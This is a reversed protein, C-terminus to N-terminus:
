NAVKVAAHRLIKDGVRYGKRLVEVVTNEGAKEDEVHAVAEHLMPDFPLGMAEIEELGLINLTETFQNIIMEVGKKYDDLSTNEVGKVRELNDLVPLLAALSVARADDFLCEKEKATRKRFNDFDAALRLFQEYLKDKEQKISELERTVKELEAKVSELEASPAPASEFASQTGTEPGKGEMDSPVAGESPTLDPSQNQNQSM